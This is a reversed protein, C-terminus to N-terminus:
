AVRKQSFRLFIVGFLLYCIWMLVLPFYPISIAAFPFSSFIEVIKLIYNLLIQSVIAFPFALWNSVLGLAGTLFGFFMALPVAPLVLLNTLVSIISLLGMKYLLLPLVFIQTSLTDALINRIGWKETVWSLKEIVVPSIWIIAITALFSLQFGTDFVLVKPNWIVMAIATILLARAVVYTRGTGRALLVLMAMLGARVVSPAGGVMLVFFFIGLAESILIVKRSLFRVRFLLWYIADVVLTINYGSLVVIHIIGTVRFMEEIDKGMSDETGLLIGGLLSSAPETIHKEIANVFKSKFTLLKTKLWNGYGADILEGRAFSMTFYIDEKSLYKAYDFVQGRDDTFSKPRELRGSFKLKDGYKFEPYVEARVLIKEEGSKLVYERYSNKYKPEEVIIGELTVTQGVNSTFNESPVHSDKIEFRFVGLSFALASIGFLIILRRESKEIFALSYVFIVVSLLVLFWAFSLDFNIISSSLVGFIFALAILLFPDRSFKSTQTVVNSLFMRLSEKSM